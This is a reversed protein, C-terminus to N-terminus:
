HTGQHSKTNILASTMPTEGENWDESTVVLTCRTEINHHTTDSPQLVIDM